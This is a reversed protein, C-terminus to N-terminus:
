GQPTAPADVLPLKEPVYDHDRKRLVRASEILDDKRIARVVDQGEIVRGFVTHRGNLHAPPTHTLYFQSGGSHPTGSHAMALSGTFHNRAGPRDHEDPIRYGPNGTGPVGEAGERSLPDGGQAMFNGIVRHFRTGDYFGEEVLAVFNAVSKPAENEFLEVVIRGHGAVVLEVRPLDDAEAEAARIAEEAAWLEPYKERLPLVRDIEVKTAPDARLAESGLAKLVDVAEQFRHEAFYADSIILSAKADAALDVAPDTLLAIVRSYENYERRIGAMGTRVRPDSPYLELLRAYIAEVRAEDLRNQAFRVWTLGVAPEGPSLRILEGFQSDALENDGVWISLQLSRALAARDDPDRERYREFRDRLDRIGQHDRQGIGGQAQFSRLLNDFDEVLRDPETEAVVEDEQAHCRAAATGTSLTAAVVITLLRSMM